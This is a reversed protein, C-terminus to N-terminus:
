LHQPIGHMNWCGYCMQIRILERKYSYHFVLPKETSVVFKCKAGDKLSKTQLLNDESIINDYTNAIKLLLFIVKDPDDVTIKCTYATRKRLRALKLASIYGDLLNFVEDPMYRNVTVKWPSRAVPNPKMRRVVIGNLRLIERSLIRMPEVTTYVLGNEPLFMHKKVIGRISEMVDAGIKRAIEKEKSKKIYERVFDNISVILSAM